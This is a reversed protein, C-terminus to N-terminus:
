ALARTPKDVVWRLGDRVQQAMWAAGAPNPHVGDPAYMTVPMDHWNVLVADSGGRNLDDVAQQMLTPAYDIWRRVRRGWGKNPQVQAVVRPPSCLVAPIGSMHLRQLLQHLADAYLRKPTGSKLADTTGVELVAVDWRSSDILTLLAPDRLLEHLTRGGKNAYEFVLTAQLARQGAQEVPAALLASLEDPWHAQLGPTFTISSGGICLVRLPRPPPTLAM